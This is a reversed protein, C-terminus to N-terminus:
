PSEQARTAVYHRQGMIAAIAALVGFGAVLAWELSGNGVDPDVRFVVEIWNPAAATQVTLIAFFGALALELRWRTM